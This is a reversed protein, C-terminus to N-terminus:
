EEHKWRYGGATKYKPRCLAVYSIGHRNIGTKRSADSVSKFRAVFKGSVTYQSVPKDGDSKHLGTRRAHADNEQRTCWELNEVRNDTKDGNIHNVERKNYPNPLFALAVLRHVTKLYFQGDIKVPLVPYGRKGISEKRVRGTVSNRVRGFTSVEYGPVGPAERWEEIPEIFDSEKRIM